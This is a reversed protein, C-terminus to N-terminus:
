NVVFSTQATGTQYGDAIITTIVTYTGKKARNSLEHTFSVSGDNATTGEDTGAVKGNPLYVVVTATAGGIPGKDAYDNVTISVAVTSSRSYTDKDTEIGIILSNVTSVTPTSSVENSPASEGVENIATLYYYYTQDNIVSADTYMVTDSLDVFPIEQGQATGRYLRYETIPAGGDSTPPSWTLTVKANGAVAELNTPPLPPIINVQQGNVAIIQNWDDSFQITYVGDTPFTYSVPTTGYIFTIQGANVPIRILRNSYDFKFDSNDFPTRLDNYYEEIAPIVLNGTIPVIGYLFLTAAACITAENSPTSGSVGSFFGDNNLSSSVLGQWAPTSGMLMNAWNTKMSSTFDPFISQLAITAGMSEWLRLQNNIREAHVIVGPSAWGPSDWNNALLKYDLDGIVRDWYPIVGGKQDKYEAIIQAFNGMGCEVITTGTYGYYQGNWHTQVGEWANDAYNIAEPLGQEYFKLFTSLTQAHEDYYRSSYSKAWNEQPDCWLMEGSVSGIPLENYAKSFDAFAQLGNWKDTLDYVPAYQYGWLAFRNYVLFCGDNLLDPDGYPYANSTIPLSGCMSIEQLATKTAESITDSSYGNLEALRAVYLADIYDGRNVDDTIAKDFVDNNQNALIIAWNTTWSNRIEWDVNNIIDNLTEALTSEIPPPIVPKKGSGAPICTILISLLLFSLLIKSATKNNTIQM